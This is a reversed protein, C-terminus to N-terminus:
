RKMLLPMDIHLSVCSCKSYCKRATGNAMLRRSASSHASLCLSIPLCYPTLKQHCQPFLRLHLLYCLFHPPICFPFGSLSWNVQPVLAIHFLVVPPFSLVVPACMCYSRFTHLCMSCYSTSIMAFHFKLAIALSGHLTM